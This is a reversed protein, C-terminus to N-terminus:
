GPDDKKDSGDTYIWANPNHLPQWPIPQPPAIPTQTQTDKGIKNTHATIKLLITPLNLNLNYKLSTVIAATVPKHYQYGTHSPQQLENQIAHLNTQSDTRIALRPYDKYTNIAEHIAVLESRM